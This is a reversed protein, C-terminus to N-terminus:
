IYGAQVYWNEMIEIQQKGNYMDRTKQMACKLSFNCNITRTHRRNSHWYLSLSFLRFSYVLVICAVCLSYFSFKLLLLLLVLGSLYNINFNHLAIIYYYHLCRLFFLSFYVCVSIRWGSFNYWTWIEMTKTHAVHFNSVSLNTSFFLCFQRFFAFCFLFVCLM